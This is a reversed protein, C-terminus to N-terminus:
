SQAKKPELQLVKVVCGFIFTNTQLLYSFSYSKPPILYRRVEFSLRYSASKSYDHSVVTVKLYSPDKKSHIEKEALDIAEMGSDIEVPLTAPAQAIPSPAHVEFHPM